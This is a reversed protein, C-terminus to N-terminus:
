ILIATPESDTGASRKGPCTSRTLPIRPAILILPEYLSLTPDNKGTKRSISKNKELATCNQKRKTFFAKQATLYM